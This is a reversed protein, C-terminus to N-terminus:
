VPQEVPLVAPLWFTFTSGLGVQSSVALDGGLIRALRLSIALGLGTGEPKGVELAAFQRFEEFIHSLDSEAIGMGTDTVTFSVAGQHNSSVQLVVSGSDTFKVANGVLNLLIQRVKRRDTTIETDPGELDLEVVLGKQAAMPRVVEVVSELVELLRFKEPEVTVRGSAIRSLDLVDNVLSLLHRGSNNIMGVQRVQEEDLEGVLGALLMDSFGIISNLPTRLEHSMNALFQDKTQGASELEAYAQRLEATRERVTDEVAAQTKAREGIEVLLATNTVRLESTREEVVHELESRADELAVVTRQYDSVLVALALTSFGFVLLVLNLALLSDHLAPGAFPGHGALTTGTTIISVVVVTAAMTRAECRFAIWTFIPLFVFPIAREIPAAFDFWYLVGTAVITVTVALSAEIQESSLKPRLPISRLIALGAIAAIGAVESLWWAIFTATPSHASAGAISMGVMGIAAPVLPAALMAGSIGLATGFGSPITGVSWSRRVLWHFVFVELAAGGGLMAAVVLSSSPLASAFSAFGVFPIVWLGFLVSGAAGIGSPIWLPATNGVRSVLPILFMAAAYYALGTAVGGVIKTRLSRAGESSM